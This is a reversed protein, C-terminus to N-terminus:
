LNTIENMLSRKMLSLHLTVTKMLMESIFVCMNKQKPGQEEQIKMEQPEEYLNKSSETNRAYIDNNQFTAKPTSRKFCTLWGRTVKKKEPLFSRIEPLTPKPIGMVVHNMVVYDPCGPPPILNQHIVKVKRSLKLLDLTM